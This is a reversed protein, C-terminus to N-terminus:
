STQDAPKDDPRLLSAWGVKPTFPYVLQKFYGEPLLPDDQGFTEPLKGEPMYYTGFLWDWIAFTPAFNSNGGEDPQTHHWRHFVPSAVVYKLPGLTWNLNSHVWAASLIDFPVLFAMAAPSIGLTMMVVTVLAPQLILNVPHFRYTTTWDVEESSHHIAHYRWMKHGHFIRHIWYLLFDAIVLYAVVQAWFPLVSLPGSGHVFFDSAQQDTMITGTLLVFIVTFAPLKFYPGLLGHILAYTLDTVVGPNRWWVKEPNSAQAKFISLISFLCALGIIIPIQKAYTEVIKDLVVLLADFNM